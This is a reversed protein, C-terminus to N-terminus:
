VNSQQGVLTAPVHDCSLSIQPFHLTFGWYFEFSQSWSDSMLFRKDRLVVAQEFPGRHYIFIVNSSIVGLYRSETNLNCCESVYWPECEFSKVFTAFCPIVM